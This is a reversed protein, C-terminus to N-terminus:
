KKTDIERNAKAQKLMADVWATAQEESFGFQERLVQAGAYALEQALVGLRQDIASPTTVVKRM